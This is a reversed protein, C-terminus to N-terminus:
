PNSNKKSEEQFLRDVASLIGQLISAERSDLRSRGFLQRLTFLIHKDQRADIFSISRLTRELHEYFRELEEAPALAPARGVPAVSAAIFLEYMVVMAAHSLNLSPFADSSPISIIEHCRALDDNTLGNVENGFVVSVKNRDLVSVAVGAMERPAHVNKRRRSEHRSTGIVLGQDVVADKLTHCTMAKELIEGAGAALKLAENDRDKPPNVLVLRSLGMNMMGRAVAGINAPTKTDVLVISLNDLNSKM